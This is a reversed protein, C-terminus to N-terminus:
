KGYKLEEIYEDISRANKKKQVRTFGSELFEFLKWVLSVVLSQM